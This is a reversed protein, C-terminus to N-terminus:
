KGNGREEGKWRRERERERERHRGEKKIIKGQV